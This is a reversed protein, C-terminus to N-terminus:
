KSLENIASIKDEISSIASLLSQKEMELQALSYQGISQAITVTNGELDKVEQPVFLEYYENNIQENQVQKAIIM